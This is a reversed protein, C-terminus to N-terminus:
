VGGNTSSNLSESLEDVDEFEVFTELLSFEFVFSEKKLLALEFM